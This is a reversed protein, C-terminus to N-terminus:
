FHMIAPDHKFKDIDNSQIIICHICVILILEKSRRNCDSSLTVKVIFNVSGMYMIDGTTSKCIRRVLLGWYMQVTTIHYM